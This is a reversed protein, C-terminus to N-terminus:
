DFIVIKNARDLANLNNESLYNHIANWHGILKFESEYEARKPNRTLYHDILKARLLVSGVDAGSKGDILEHLRKILKEKDPYQIIDRFNPEKRDKKHPINKKATEIVDPGNFYEITEYFPIFAPSLNYDDKDHLDYEIKLEQIHIFMAKMMRSIRRLLSIGLEDIPNGEKKGEMLRSFEKEGYVKVESVMEIWKDYADQLETRYEVSDILERIMPPWNEPSWGAYNLNNDLDDIKQECKRLSNLIDEKYFRNYRSTDVAIHHFIVSSINKVNLCFLRTIPFEDKM